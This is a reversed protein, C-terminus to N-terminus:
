HNIVIADDNVHRDWLYSGVALVIGGGFGILITQWNM